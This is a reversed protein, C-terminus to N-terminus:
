SLKTFVCELKGPKIIIQNKCGSLFSSGDEGPPFEFDYLSITYSLVLKAVMLALSKGACSFPGQTDITLLVTTVLRNHSTGVRDSQGLTYREGKLFPHYARKDLIFDPQTTWREPRWEDPYVFYMPGSIFPSYAM